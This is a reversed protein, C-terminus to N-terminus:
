RVSFCCLCRESLDCYKKSHMQTAQRLLQGKLDLSALPMGVNLHAKSCSIVRKKKHRVVNKKM